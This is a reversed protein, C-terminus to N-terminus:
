IATKTVPQLVTTDDEGKGTPPSLAGVDDNWSAGADGIGSFAVGDEAGRTGGGGEGGEQEDHAEDDETSLPVTETTTSSSAREDSRTAASEAQSGERSGEEEEEEEKEEEQKIAVIAESETMPKAFVGGPEVARKGENGEPSNSGPLPTDGTAPTTADACSSSRSAEARAVPDRDCREYFLM